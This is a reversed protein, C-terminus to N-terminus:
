KCTSQINNKMSAVAKDFDNWNASANVSVKGLYVKLNNAFKETSLAKYKEKLRFLESYKPLSLSSDRAYRVETYLRNKSLNTQM